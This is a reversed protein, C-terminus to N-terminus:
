NPLKHDSGFMLILKAIEETLSNIIPELLKIVAYEKPNNKLAKELNDRYLQRLQTNINIKNIGNAIAEKFYHEPTGSGGHLSLYSQTSSKIEKLLEIDLIKSNKYIGHLNGISAAFVDIGTKEVFNQAQYPKTFHERIEEYDIKADHLTSSGAFYEMEGEVMVNKSQAYAVVEKTNKIIEYSDKTNKTIDLHVLDFGADIAKFCKEPSNSHDLNLYIQVDFQANLDDVLYRINNLGLFDVETESVEVLCPAQLRKCARGVAQLTELNDINFAGLGFKNQNAIQFWEALTKKKTM